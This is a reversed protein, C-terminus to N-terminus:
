EINDANDDEDDDADDEEFNTTQGHYEALDTMKAITNQFKESPGSRLRQLYEENPKIKEFHNYKGDLKKLSKEDLEGLVFTSKGEVNQCLSIM